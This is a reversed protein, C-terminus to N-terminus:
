SFRQIQQLIETTVETPTLNADIEVIREPFLGAIELYARALAEKQRIDSQEIRDVKLRRSEATTVDVVLLFTCDPIVEHAAENLAIVRQVGLGRVIGQYALSSDLFRDCIV